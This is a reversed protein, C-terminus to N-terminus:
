SIYYGFIFFFDEEVDNVEEIVLVNDVERELFSLFDDLVLFYNVFVLVEFFFFKVDDVNSFEM